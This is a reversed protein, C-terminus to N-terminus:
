LPDLLGHRQHLTGGTLRSLAPLEKEETYLSPFHNTEPSIVPPTLAWRLGTDSLSPISSEPEPLLQQPQPSRTNLVPSQKCGSTLSVPSDGHLMQVVGPLKVTEIATERRTARREAQESWAVGASCLTQVPSPLPALTSPIAVPTHGAMQQQTLRFVSSGPLANPQILDDVGAQVVDIAECSGSFREKSVYTSEGIDTSDEVKGKVLCDDQSAMECAAASEDSTRQKQNGAGNAVRSKLPKAEIGLQAGLRGTLFKQVTKSHPIPSSHVGPDYTQLEEMPVWDTRSEFPKFRDLRSQKEPNHHTTMKDPRGRTQVGSTHGSEPRRPISYPCRAEDHVCVYIVSQEWDMQKDM